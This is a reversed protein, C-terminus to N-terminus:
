SSVLRLRGVYKSLPHNTDKSIRVIDSPSLVAIVTLKNSCKDTFYDADYVNTETVLSQGKKVAILLVKPDDQNAMATRVAYGGASEVDAIFFNGRVGNSLIDEAFKSGTGHWGLVNYDDFNLTHYPIYHRKQSVNPDNQVQAQVKPAPEVYYGRTQLPIKLNPNYAITNSSSTPLDSTDKSRFRQLSQPNRPIIKLSASISPRVSLM